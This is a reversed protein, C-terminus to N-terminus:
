YAKWNLLERALEYPPLYRRRAKNTWYSLPARALIQEDSLEKYEAMKRLAPLNMEVDEMSFQCIARALEDAAIGANLM